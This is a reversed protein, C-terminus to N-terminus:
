AGVTLKVEGEYGLSCRTSYVVGHFGVDYIRYSGLTFNMSHVLQLIFLKELFTLSHEQLM